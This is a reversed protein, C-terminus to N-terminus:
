AISSKRCVHDQRRQRGTCPTVRSSCECAFNGASIGAQFDLVERAPDGLGLNIQAAHLRAGHAEKSLARYDLAAARTIRWHESSSKEMDAIRLTSKTDGGYDLM